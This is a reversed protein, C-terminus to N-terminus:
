LEVKGNLLDKHKRWMDDKRLWRRHGIFVTKSSGLDKELKHYTTDDMCRVCACLGHVVQGSVYGCGLYAHVMTVLVSRMPFYDQAVSDWM